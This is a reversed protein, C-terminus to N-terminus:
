YAMAASSTLCSLGPCLLSFYKAQSYRFSRRSAMEDVAHWHWLPHLLADHVWSSERSEHAACDAFTEEGGAGFSMSILM